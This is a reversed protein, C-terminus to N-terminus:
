RPPPLVKVSLSCPTYNKKKTLVIVERLLVNGHRLMMFKHLNLGEKEIEDLFGLISVPHIGAEKPSIRKM